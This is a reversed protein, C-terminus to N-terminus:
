RESAEYKVNLEDSVAFTFTPEGPEFPRPFAYVMWGTVTDKPEIVSIYDLRPHTQKRREIEQLVTTEFIGASAGGSQITLAFGSLKKRKDTRNEIRVRMELILAQYQFNDWDKSLITVKLDPGSRTRVFPLLSKLWREIPPWFASDVLLLALGVTLFVWPWPNERLPKLWTWWTGADGPVGSLGIIFLILGVASRIRKRLEM